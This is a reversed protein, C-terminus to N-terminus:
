PMCVLMLDGFLHVVGVCDLLIAEDCKDITSDVLTRM